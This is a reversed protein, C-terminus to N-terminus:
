QRGELWLLIVLVIENLKTLYGLAGAPWSKDGLVVWALITLITYGIFAWRVLRRNEKLFPLPVFLAALFALYGLGNLTFMVDFGGRNLLVLHVFATILTLIIIGIELLGFHTTEQQIAQSTKM